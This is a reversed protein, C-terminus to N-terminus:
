YWKQRKLIEDFLKKLAEQCGKKKIAVTPVAPFGLRKSIQSPKMARPLDQKNALVVVPIDKYQIIGLMERARNFTQPKTSDVVLLIGFITQSLFNLIWDFREQGPTGFLDVAFGRGEVYGHDLAVTTGLSDVSIPRMSLANVTSSKGADYPGTVLIKPVYVSIGSETMDFPIRTELEPKLVEIYKIILGKREMTKLHIVYDFIKNFNEIDKKKFGINALLFYSLTRTSKIKEKSDLLFREVNKWQGVWFDLSDFVLVTGYGKRRELAKFLADKSLKMFSDVNTTKEKIQFEEKSKKGLSYSMGDIFSIKNRYKDWESISNKVFDPTKNDVFYVGNDREKLRGSFLDMGFRAKDILMDSLVLVLSGDNIGGGLIEDLKEITTPIRM